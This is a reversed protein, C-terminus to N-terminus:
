GASALRLWEKYMAAYADRDRTGVYDVSMGVLVAIALRLRVEAQEAPLADLSLQATAVPRWLDVLSTYGSVLGHEQDPERILLYTVEVLVPLLGLLAGHHVEHEIAAAVDDSTWPTEAANRAAIQREIEARSRRSAEDAIAIVLGRRSGFHYALMRHSTGIAQACARLSLDALGERAVYDVAATLLEERSKAM